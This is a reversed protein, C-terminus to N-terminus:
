MKKTAHKVVIALLQICAPLISRDSATSQLETEIPLPRLRNSSQISLTLLTNMYRKQDNDTFSFQLNKVVYFKDQFSMFFTGLKLQYM